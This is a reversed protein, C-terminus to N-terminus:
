RGSCDAEDRVGCLWLLLATLRSPALTSSASRDTPLGRSAVQGGKASQRSASSDTIQNLGCLLAAAEHDTLLNARRYALIARCAHQERGRQVPIIRLSFDSRIIELQHGFPTPRIM